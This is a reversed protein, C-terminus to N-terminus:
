ALLAPRLPDRGGARRVRLNLRAGPGSSM